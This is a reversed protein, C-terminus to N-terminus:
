REPKNFTQMRKRSNQGEEERYSSELLGKSAGGLKLPKSINKKEVTARTRRKGRICNEKKREQEYSSPRGIRKGQIRARSGSTKLKQQTPANETKRTASPGKKRSNTLGLATTIHYLTQWKSSWWRFERKGRENQRGAEIGTGEEDMGRGKRFGSFHLQEEKRSAILGGSRINRATDVIDPTKKGQRSHRGKIGRARGFSPL